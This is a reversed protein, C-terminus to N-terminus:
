SKFISMCLCAHHLLPQTTRCAARLPCALSGIGADLLTQSFTERAPEQTRTFICTVIVPSPPLHAREADLATLHHSLCSSSSECAVLPSRRHHHHSPPLEPLASVASSPTPNGPSSTKTTVQIASGNRDDDAACRWGQAPCPWNVRGKTSCRWHRATDSGAPPAHHDPRGAPAVDEGVSSTGPTRRDPANTRFDHTHGSSRGTFM